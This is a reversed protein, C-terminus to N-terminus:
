KKANMVSKKIKEAFPRMYKEDEVRFSFVCNVTVSSNLSFAEIHMMGNQVYEIFGSNEFLRKARVTKAGGREEKEKLLSKADYNFINVGGWVILSIKEDPKKLTIGDGNDSERSYDFIDPYEFSFGYRSNVYRETGPDAYAQGIFAVAIVLIFFAFYIKKMM